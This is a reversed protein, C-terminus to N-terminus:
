VCFPFLSERSPGNERTKMEGFRICMEAKTFFSSKNNQYTSIEARPLYGCAVQRILMYVDVLVHTLCLCGGVVLREGPIEHRKKKSVCSSVSPLFAVQQGPVSVKSEYISM